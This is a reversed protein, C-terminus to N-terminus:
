EHAHEKQYKELRAHLGTWTEKPVLDRVPQYIADADKGAAYAPIEVKEGDAMVNMWESSGGVPMEEPSKWTRSFVGRKLLRVYLRELKAPKVTFRERWM